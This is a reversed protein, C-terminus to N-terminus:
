QAGGASLGTSVKFDSDSIGAAAGITVSQLTLVKMTRGDLLESQQFPVSIGSINRYDALLLTFPVRAYHNDSAARFFDIRIPAGSSSLWVTKEMIRHKLGAAFEDSEPTTIHVQQVIGLSSNSFGDGEITTETNAPNLEDLLFPFSPTKLSAAASATLTRVKGGPMMFAGGLGNIVTSHFGNPDNVDIRYHQSGRCRITVPATVSASGDPAYYTLVGVALVDIPNPTAPQFWGLSHFSTSLSLKLAQSNATQGFLHHSSVLWFLIILLAGNVIRAFRFESSSHAGESPTAPM